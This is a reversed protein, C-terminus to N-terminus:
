ACYFSKSLSELLFSIGLNVVAKFFNQIALDLIFFVQFPDTVASGWFSSVSSFDRLPTDLTM